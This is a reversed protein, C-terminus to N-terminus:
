STPDQHFVDNFRPHDDVHGKLRKEGVCVWLACHGHLPRKIGLDQDLGGSASVQMHHHELAVPHCELYVRDIRSLMSTAGCQMALRRYTFDYLLLEIHNAFFPDCSQSLYGSPVIDEAPGSLVVEASCVFNRGGLLLNRGTRRTLPLEIDEFM